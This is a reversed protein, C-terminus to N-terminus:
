LAGELWHEALKVLDLVDIVGDPDLDCDADFSPEASAALWAASLRSVDLYDVRFDGTIDGFIPERGQLWNASFIAWDKANIIDDGSLDAIMCEDTRLWQDAFVQLDDENANGDGTVDAECGGSCDAMWDLALRAVDAFNVIGDDSVDAFMNFDELWCGMFVGLDYYDVGYPCVLDGPLIQWQLRPYSLGDCGDWVSNFNWGADTFTTITQMQITDRGMVGVPDPEADGVGDTMGSSQTDWFCSTIDYINRGVLGGVYGSGNVVGTSYSSTITGKNDGVLGGIDNDSGTVGGRSYCRIIHGYSYNLGVLGGVDTVGTVRGASYCDTIYYNNWGTLGGVNNNGTVNSNSYSKDISGKNNNGVLGGIYGWIGNVSGTAFSSIIEGHYNSGTLGGTSNRGNIVGSSSSGTISGYYNHSVMGGISSGTTSISINNLALNDVSGYLLNFFGLSNGSGADITLNSIKHGNGNFSGGFSESIFAETYTVGALNIDNTLSYHGIRLSSNNKFEMLDDNNAIIFPDNDYGTGSLTTTIGDILNPAELGPSPQWSLRPMYGPEIMWHDNTGDSPDGAFDFGVFSAKDQLQTDDLAIGQDTDPGAYIYFYSTNVVDPSGANYGVLGGFFGNAEVTGVAYSDSIQGSLNEGVLGGVSNGGTVNGSSYSNTINGNDHYGVLGGADRGSTVDVNSYSGTISGYYKYGVLGGSYRDTCSISADEIGLNQIEANSTKGFVGCYYAGNITLNRIVYGNGDFTGSFAIGDFTSDTDTDGAIPAQTYTRGALDIDTTLIFYGSWDDSTAEFEDWDDITAIIYPDGEIGTGGSYKPDPTVQWALIPYDDVPMYWDAPDGDDDVFDWGADTFTVETQMDITERGMAGAPDPDESGVGDTTGSAQTDWFSSTINGFNQGVLGGLVFSGTVSGISYSNSISDDNFGVLGGIYFGSTDVSARAYCDDISSVNFGILGGTYSGGVISGTVYCRTVSGFNFGALGGIIEYSGTIFINNLGLDKVESDTALIGFLGCYYAGSVTLNSIVHDNGDFTGSFATGDFASDTDTDGAIPAQTYTGATSLDLDCDLRTYDDWYSTDACFTQFDLIDEILFPDGESGLGPITGGAGFAQATLLMMAAAFAFTKKMRM